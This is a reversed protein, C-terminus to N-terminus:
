PTCGVRLIFFIIKLIFLINTCTATYLNSYNEVQLGMTSYCNDTQVEPFMGIAGVINKNVDLYTLYYM